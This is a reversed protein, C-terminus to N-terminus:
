ANKQYVKMYFVKNKSNHNSLYSNLLIQMFAPIKNPFLFFFLQVPGSRLAFLRHISPVARPAPRRPQDPSLGMLHWIQVVFIPTFLTAKGPWPNSGLISSFLCHIL